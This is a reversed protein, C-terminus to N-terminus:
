RTERVEVIVPEGPRAAARGAFQRSYPDVPPAHGHVRVEGPADPLCPVRFSGDDSLGAAIEAGGVAFKVTTSLGPVTPRRLRGTLTRGPELKVVVSEGPALGSAFGVLNRSPVRVLFAYKRDPDLGSFLMPRDGRDSPAHCHAGDLTVLTPTEPLPRGEPWGDLRVEISTERRLVVRVDGGGSPIATAHRVLWEPEDIAYYVTEDEAGSVHRAVNGAAVQVPMDVAVRWSFRGEADTRAEQRRSALADPAAGTVGRVFVDAVADGRWDVVIGELRRFRALRIDHTAATWSTHFPLLAAGRDSMAVTIWGGTGVVGDHTVIGADDTPYVSCWRAGDCQVWVSVGRVPRDGADLLRFTATRAYTVRVEASAATAELRTPEGAHLTEPLDPWLSYRHPGLGDFVCVGDADTREGHEFGYWGAGPVDLSARVPVDAVPQGLADVVRVRASRRPELRVRVLSGPEEPLLVVTDGCPIAACSLDCASRVILWGGAMWASVRAAGDAVHAVEQRHRWRVHLDARAVRSGDQTEVQVEFPRTEDVPSSDPLPDLPPLADPAPTPPDPPGGIRLVIPEGGAVARASAEALDGLWRRVEVEYEGPELGDIEFAGDPGLLAGRDPLFGADRDPRDRVFAGLWNLDLAGSSIVRGRISLGRPLRLVLTRESGPALDRATLRLKPGDAYGRCSATVDHVRELLPGVRARGAGDTGASVGGATDLDIWFSSPNRPESCLVRADPLPAGTEADVVDVTVFGGRPFALQIDPPDRVSATARAEARFPQGPARAALWHDVDPVLGTVEFRGDADTTTASFDSSRRVPPGSSAPTTEVTAGRVPEGDAAVVRGRISAPRVARLHLVPTRAGESTAATGPVDDAFVWGGGDVSWTEDRAVCREFRALGEADCAAVLEPEWGPGVRPRRGAVRAGAAPAGTDADTVRVDLHTAQEMAVHVTEAGAAATATRTVFGAASVTLPIEADRDAALLAVGRADATAADHDGHTQAVRAGAVPQAGSAVRVELPRLRDALRFEVPERRAPDVAPGSLRSGEGRSARVAITTAPLGTLTFSGDEGCRTWPVDRALLQRAPGSCDAGVWGRFPRGDVDIVRGRVTERARDPLLRLDAHEIDGEPRLHLSTEAARDDHAIADLKYSGPALGLFAFTGDAASAAEALPPGALVAPDSDIRLLADSSGIRRLELRAAAPWGGSRVIGTIACRGGGVTVTASKPPAARAGSRSPASEAPASESTTRAERSSRPLLWLGAVAAALVGLAAWRGIAHTM